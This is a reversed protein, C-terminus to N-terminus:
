GNLNKYCCFIKRKIGKCYASKLKIRLIVENFLNESELVFSRLNDGSKNSSDYPNLQYCEDKKDTQQIIPNPSENILLQILERLQNKSFYSIIYGFKIKNYISSPLLRNYNNNDYWDDICFKGSQRGSGLHIYSILMRFATHRKQEDTMTKINFKKKLDRKSKVGTFINKEIKYRTGKILRYYQKKGFEFQKQDPDDYVIEVIEQKIMEKLHLSLIQQNNKEPFIKDRLENFQMKENELLNKYIKNDFEKNWFCRDAM